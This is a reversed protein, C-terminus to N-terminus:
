PSICSFTVRIAKATSESVPYTNADTKISEVSKKQLDGYVVRASDNSTKDDCSMETKFEACRLESSESGDAFLFKYSGRGLSNLDSSDSFGFKVGDSTILYNIVATEGVMFIDGPFGDLIPGNSSRPVNACEPRDSIRDAAARSLGERIASSMDDFSAAKKIREYLEPFHRKYDEVGALNVVERGILNKGEQSLPAASIAEMLSKIDALATESKRQYETANARDRAAEEEAGKQKHAAEYDTWLTLGLSCALALGAFVVGRRGWVTLKKRGTEKDTTTFEFFWNGVFTTGVTLIWSLYKLLMVWTIDM